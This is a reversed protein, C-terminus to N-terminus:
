SISLHRFSVAEPLRGQQPLRHTHTQQSATQTGLARPATVLALLFTAPPSTSPYGHNSASFPPDSSSIQSQHLAPADQVCVIYTELINVKEMVINVHLQM